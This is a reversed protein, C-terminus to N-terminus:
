LLGGAVGIRLWTLGSLVGWGIERLNMKIGNEWRRGPRELPRKGEPKGVLVRYVNRGREWAHWM